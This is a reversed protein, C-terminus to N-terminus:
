LPKEVSTAMFRNGMERATTREKMAKAAQPFDVGGAASGTSM